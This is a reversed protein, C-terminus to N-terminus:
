DKKKKWSKKYKKKKFVIKDGTDNDFFGKCSESKAWNRCGLYEWGKKSVRKILASGCNPCLYNSEELVPKPKEYPEDNEGIQCKYDCKSEKNTRNECSYFAGWKSFKRVLFGDCDPCSFNTKSQEEKIKKANVLDSKLRNWFCNLIDLKNAEKNAIRDLNNEMSCTFELDVFCFDVGILFDSVRVGMETTYITNKKKEIYGRSFLTNPISAYTSPRGIGKKELEKTLSSETYRPPPTTFKQETRVDILKLEEGIVFEPLVTDSMNGYNWVKRWGDFIVKSGSAGFLYKECEFEASGVFQRLNAVQSAVTRKWIIKYLKNADLGPVSETALETVRVAEHAEQASKKNSFVNAKSPLYSNGYKTPIAGRMACVFEPVIYTSDSRIYTIHGQEYLSQSIQATKKSGWGLISSGSQYMTSTTFPPYARTSKEKTEYKSVKWKEKKLVKIIANAADGTKIDLPKPVKINATVTEGNKRELDVEIPWYEQPIFSQIEKEREALIRLAASQVRGASKGGTAQQTPFSAKYGCLRDLIRRCEYSHVMDMDIDGANAIADKVAQKTISGTVARKIKTSKPLQRSIHWAIAEGERDLDSMLYVIEAKAAKEKIKKVTDKKDSSVAYTPEFDKKIDVSLKKKPLDAIHGYSAMVEYDKGLYKKIYGTKKPSEVIVLYKSM